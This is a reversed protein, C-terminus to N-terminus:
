TVSTLEGAGRPDAALGRLRLRLSKYSDSSSYERRIKIVMGRNSKRLADDKRCLKWGRRAFDYVHQSMQPPRPPFCRAGSNYIPNMLDYVDCIEAESLSSEMQSEWINLANWNAILNRKLEAFEVAVFPTSPTRPLNTMGGPTRCTNKRAMPPEIVTAEFNTMDTHNQNNRRERADHRGAM